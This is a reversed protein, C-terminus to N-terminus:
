ALVSWGAWRYCASGHDKAHEDPTCRIYSGRRESLRPLSKLPKGSVVPEGFYQAVTFSEPADGEATAPVDVSQGHFPGGSHASVKV